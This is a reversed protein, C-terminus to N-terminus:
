FRSWPCRCRLWTIFTSLIVLQICAGRAARERRYVGAMRTKPM